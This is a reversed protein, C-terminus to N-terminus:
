KRPFMAIREVALEEADDRSILGTRDSVYNLALAPRAVLFRLLDGAPLSQPWAWPSLSFLM